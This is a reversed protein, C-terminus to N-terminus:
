DLQIKQNEKAKAISDNRRQIVLQKQAEVKNISDKKRQEALIKKQENIVKAISDQKAQAVRQIRQQEKAKVISDNRKLELSSKKAELEIKAISDIRNQEILEKARKAKNSIEEEKKEKEKREAIAIDRQKEEHDFYLDMMQENVFLYQDKVFGVFDKYKIKYTYNGLYSTVICKQNEKFEAIIESSKTPTEYLNGDQSFKTSISAEQAFLNTTFSLFVILPYIHKVM